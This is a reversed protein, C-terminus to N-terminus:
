GPPARSLLQGQPKVKKLRLCVSSVSFKLPRTYSTRDLSSMITGSGLELIKFGM